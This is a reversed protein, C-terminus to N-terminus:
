WPLYLILLPINLNESSRIEVFRTKAEARPLISWEPQRGYGITKSLTYATGRVVDNPNYYYASEALRKLGTGPGLRLPVTFFFVHGVNGAILLGGVKAIRNDPDIKAFIRISGNSDGDGKHQVFRESITSDTVAAFIGNTEVHIPWWWNQELTNAVANLADSPYRVSLPGAIVRDSPRTSQVLLWSTVEQLNEVQVLALENGIPNPRSTPEIAYVSRPSGWNNDYAKEAIRPGITDSPGVRIVLPASPWIGSPPWMQSLAWEDALLQNPVSRWDVVPLDGYYDVILYITTGVVVAGLVVVGAPVLVSLVAALQISPILVMKLAQPDQDPGRLNGTCVITKGVVAYGNDVQWEVRFSGGCAYRMAATTDPDLPFCAPIELPQVEPASPVHAVPCVNQGGM